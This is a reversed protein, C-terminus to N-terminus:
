GCSVYFSALEEELCFGKPFAAGDGVEGFRDESQGVLALDRPLHGRRWNNGM